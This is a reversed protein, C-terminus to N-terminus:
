SYNLLGVASYAERALALSRPRWYLSFATKLPSNARIVRSCHHVFYQRRGCLVAACLVRKYLCERRCAPLSHRTDGDFRRPAFRVNLDDFRSLHSLFRSLPVVARCHRYEGNGERTDVRIGIYLPTTQPPKAAASVEYTM